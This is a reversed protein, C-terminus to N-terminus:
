VWLGAAHRADRWREFDGPYDFDDSWDDVNVFDQVIAHAAVALAVGQACRYVEWGGGRDIEGQALRRRVEFVAQALREVGGPTAQVTVGFLEGWPCGTIESPHARGVWTMEGREHDCLADVAADTLFCDGYVIATPAVHHVHPLASLFKDTDLETAAPQVVRAGCRRYRNDGDPGLVIVEVFRQHFQRVLRRLLTDGGVPALHKPVGLHNGWRTGEGGAM